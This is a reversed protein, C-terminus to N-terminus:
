GKVLSTALKEKIDNMFASLDDDLYAKIYINEVKRFDFENLETERM